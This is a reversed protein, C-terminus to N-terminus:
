GTDGVNEFMRMQKQRELDSRDPEIQDMRLLDGPTFLHDKIMARSAQDAPAIQTNGQTAVVALLHETEPEIQDLLDPSHTTVLVQTHTPAERLADMLAGSAAPHLATEPEEIGVLRVPVELGALQAVAVLAGLVRLTGDSMSAAYFKWSLKFGEVQQRFELTEKPGLSVRGVDTIGPVITTLYSKIREKLNPNTAEIRAIVSAINGGDRRLIERADPSQLARMSEPNINYFGMTVLADYVERFDPLGAATVLYLRDPAAPPGATATTKIGKGDAIRYQNEVRVLRPFDHSVVTLEERKVVFGGRHRAAIEFGYTATRNRPLYLELELAFNRPHGTSRRRVEDIGGRAKIAHDLSTELGDVIFRLADLFNSKGSGNRGVLVTLPKLSVDCGVISKYNKVKVRKLFPEPAELGNSARFSASLAEDGDPSSEREAGSLVPASSSQKRAKSTL